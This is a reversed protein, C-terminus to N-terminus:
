SKLLVKLNLKVLDNGYTIAQFNSFIGLFFAKRRFQKFYPGM